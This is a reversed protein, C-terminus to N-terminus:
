QRLQATFRDKDNGGTRMHRRGGSKKGWTYNGVTEYWVLVHDTNCLYADRVGSIRTSGDLKM